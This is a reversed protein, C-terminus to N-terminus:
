GHRAAEQWDRQRDRRLQMGLASAVITASLTVFLSLGVVAFLNADGSWILELATLGDLGAAGRGISKQVNRTSCEFIDFM